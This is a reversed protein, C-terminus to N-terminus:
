GPIVFANAQDDDIVHVEWDQDQLGTAPLLRNLVKRVLISYPHMGPYIRGKYEELTGEYAAKGYEIEREKSVCNFRRRGTEPITEINYLIFIVYGTGGVIIVARFTPNNRWELLLRQLRSPQQPQRPQRPRQSDRQAKQFAPHDKPPPEYANWRFQRRAQQSLPQRFLTRILSSSIAPSPKFDTSRHYLVCRLGPFLRLTNSPRMTEWM